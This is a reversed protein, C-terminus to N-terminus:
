LAGLVLAHLARVVEADNYKLIYRLFSSFFNAAGHNQTLDLRLLLIGITCADGDRTAADTIGSIYARGCIGEDEELEHNVTDQRTAIYAKDEKVCYVNIEM